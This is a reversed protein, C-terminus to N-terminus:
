HQQHEVVLAVQEVTSLANLAVKNLVLLLHLLHAAVAAASTEEALCTHHM